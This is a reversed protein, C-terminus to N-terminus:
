RDSRFGIRRHSQDCFPKTASAGCRCLKAHTVRAVIRGTGSTIELNGIVELPGDIEPEIALPGAQDPLPDSSTAPPEGTADFEIARHSNDCFPKNKSAGCRCLTLRYGAPAGALQVDARIAYPGRERVVILNVQPAPEPTGDTREYRLAGSPCGHIVEIVRAPDAEDPHIWPGKTVNAVFVKPAGTVCNRAHICRKGDYLVTLASGQSRRGGSVLSTAPPAPAPAPAPVPPPAPVTVTAPMVRRVRAALDVLVRLAREIRADKSTALVTAADVLEHFREDFVRWASAGRPLPSADRLATFTMGANVDPHAPGIPLRVAREAIPTMARMLGIGLDVAVRKQPVGRPVQYAYALMRLMLSYIANALDVTAAAEADAIWVRAASIPPRLVPDRAAPFAPAYARDSRRADDLEARVRRFVQFHSDQHDALAGEGQEVISAFAALATKSCMVAKIGPIQMDETTLQLSPDNCFAAEEGHKEVFTRLGDGLSAYFAGVTDYDIAMPTLRAHPTARNRPSAHAFGAGDAERSCVPRELFIFHQLVDEEFPALRAIVSAPLAGPEIPFNGRGFRPSGGLASTINWVAALHGMEELAVNVIARRWGSAREAQAATIGDAADTKITFAAYLYTCMLDHELEAAEYLCHLLQERTPTRMGTADDRTTGAAHARSGAGGTAGGSWASTAGALARM